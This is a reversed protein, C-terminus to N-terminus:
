QPIFVYVGGCFSVQRYEVQLGAGPCLPIVECAAWYFEEEDWHSRWQERDQPTEFSVDGVVVRGDPGLREALTKLIKMKTPLDFEHLVYTSVIRDFQRDLEVPWGDLLDYRVLVAHPLKERARALMESSFDCGCVTCELAQFRQALNGTGIGVDLITTAPEAEALDRVTDLVQEYGDLPFGETSSQDYTAAWRDFIHLRPNM